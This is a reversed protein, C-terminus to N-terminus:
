RRLFEANICTELIGRVIKMSGRGFGNCALYSVEQMSIGAFTVLHFIVNQQKSLSHYGRDIVSSFANELNPLVRFFNPIASEIITWFEPNAASFSGDTM